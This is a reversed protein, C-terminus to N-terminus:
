SEVLWTSALAQEREGCSQDIRSAVPAVILQQDSRSDPIPDDVDPKAFIFAAEIKIHARLDDGIQIPTAASGAHEDGRSKIGCGCSVRFRACGVLGNECIM